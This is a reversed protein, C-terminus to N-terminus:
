SELGERIFEPIETNDYNDFIIEGEETKMSECYWLWMEHEKEQLYLAEKTCEREHDEELIPNSM